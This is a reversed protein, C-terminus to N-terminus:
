YNSLLIKSVQNLIIFILGSCFLIEANECCSNAQEHDHPKAMDPIHEYVKDYVNISSGSYTRQSPAGRCLPLVDKVKAIEVLLTM